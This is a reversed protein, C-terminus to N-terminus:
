CSLVFAMGNNEKPDTQTSVSPTQKNRPIMKSHGYDFRYPSCSSRESHLKQFSSCSAFFSLKRERAVREINHGDFMSARVDYMPGLSVFTM